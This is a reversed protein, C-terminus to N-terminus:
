REILPLYITTAINATDQGENSLGSMDSVQGRRAQFKDRSNLAESLSSQRVPSEVCTSNNESNVDDKTVVTACSQVEPEIDQGVLVTLRLTSTRRPKISRQYVCQVSSYESTCSWGRGSWGRDALTVGNPLSFYVTTPATIAYRGVNQVRLTYSARQGPTLTGPSRTSIQIDRQCTGNGPPCIQNGFEFGSAVGGNTVIVEYANHVPTTLRWQPPAPAFRDESLIYVGPPVVFLFNGYADSTEFHVNAPNTVSQLKFTFGELPGEGIDRVKNGNEDEFKTGLVCGNLRPDPGARLSRTGDGDPSPSPKVITRNDCGYNGFNLVADNNGHSITVTHTGGNSGPYTQVWGAPVQERVTYTGPSVDLFYYLGTSNTTTTKIVNGAADLLEIIVGGLRRDAENTDWVGNKNLDQFKFGMIYGDCSSLCPQNGFDLGSIHQGNSVTFVHTGNNQTYDPTTQSWGSTIGEKVFYEGPPIDTFIYGERANSITVPGAVYPPNPNYPDGAYVSFTFGDLLPELIDVGPIQPIEDRIGNGNMDWFKQGRVTVNPNYNGFDRHNVTEGPQVTVSYTGQAVPDTQVWPKQQIESITYTGAPVEICYRGNRGTTASESEYNTDTAEITWGPLGPENRDQVGNGNLDNYKTGCINAPLAAAVCSITLANLVPIPDNVFAQIDFVEGGTEHALSGADLGYDAITTGFDGDVIGFFVADAVNLDAIAQHQQQAHQAPNSPDSDEDSVLVICKGAHPRFEMDNSVAMSAAQFGLEKSGNTVLNGMATIFPNTTTIATLIHPAGGNASAGFGVLGFRGDLSNTNLQNAIININNQVAQQKSGMSGSEDIAFVIDLQGAQAYITTPIFNLFFTIGLIWYIWTKVQKVRHM